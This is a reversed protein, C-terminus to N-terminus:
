HNCDSHACHGFRVQHVIQVRDMLPINLCVRQYFGCSCCMFLLYHLLPHMLLSLIPWCMALSLLDPTNLLTCAAPNLSRAPEDLVDWSRCLSQRSYRTHHPGTVSNHCSALLGVETLTKLSQQKLPIGPILGAHVVLLDLTPILLSFPLQRLWEARTDGLDEMWKM